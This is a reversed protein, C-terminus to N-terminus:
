HGHAEEAADHMASDAMDKAEEMMEEGAQVASDMRTTDAMEDPHGAAPTTETDGEKQGCGVLMAAGLALCLMLVLLKKM